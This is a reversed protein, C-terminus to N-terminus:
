KKNPMLVRDAEDCEAQITAYWGPPLNHKCASRLRSLAKAMRDAEDARVTWGGLTAMVVECIEDASVGTAANRLLLRNINRSLM